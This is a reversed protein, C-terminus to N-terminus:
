NGNKELSEKQVLPRDIKGSATKPFSDIIFIEQPVLYAPAECKCHNFLEEIAVPTSLSVLARIKYGLEDDPLGFVVTDTVAPIQLLLEEVETPSVRYGGSKIMNDKRGIFYLFGEQDKKVLDGSYVVTELFQNEKPLLPNPRYVEATKEPNNWYGRAICAGRHVLEGIEGPACIEGQENIVEIQVNPIAKGMSDPRTDVQAPDLFTSRFAETLGYMLFLQTQTFTTRIKKIIPLPLKGGSNTIYRLAPFHEATNLTSMKSNFFSTWITPIAALGTIKEEKLIKVLSSPMFYQFLVLTAGQYIATTLQNLGYDFNFPLLGLIREAPGIKLYEAVIKAGDILNRHTLVIGKPLGTSGSTYIINAIDDTISTCNKRPKSNNIIEAFNEEFIIEQCCSNNKILNLKEQDKQDAILLKIQCDNIIHLLQKEHLAPNIIVFAAEAYLVGFLSIVQAISKDLYIGIRENTETKKTNLFSGLAQAQKLLSSYSITQDKHKLAEKNPYKEASIELFHQLLFPKM